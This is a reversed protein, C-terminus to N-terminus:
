EKRGLRALLARYLAPPTGLEHKCRLKTRTSDPLDSFWVWISSGRNRAFFERGVQQLEPPLDGVCYPDLTEAYWWAVEATEPDILSGERKRDALYQLVESETQM